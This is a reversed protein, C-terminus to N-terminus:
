PANLVDLSIAGEGWTTDRPAPSVQVNRPSTENATPQVLLRCNEPSAAAKKLSLIVRSIMVPIYRFGSTLWKFSFAYTLHLVYAAIGSILPFFLVILTNHHPYTPSQERPQFLEFLRSSLPATSTM